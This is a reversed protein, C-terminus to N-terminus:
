GRLFSPIVDYARRPMDQTVLETESRRRGSVEGQQEGGDGCCGLEDGCIHSPGPENIQSDVGDNWRGPDLKECLIPIAPSVFTWPSSCFFSSTNDLLIM